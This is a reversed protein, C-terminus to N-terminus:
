GTVGTFAGGLGECLGQILSVNDATIGYYYRVTYVDIQFTCYGSSGDPCRNESWTGDGILCDDEASGSGGFFEECVTYATGDGLVNAQDGCSATFTLGDPDADGDADSDTDGDTDSDTDGDTDSDTDGDTGGGDAATDDNEGEAGGDCAPVLVWAAALVACRRGYKRLTNM